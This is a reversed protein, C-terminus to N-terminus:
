TFRQSLHTLLKLKPIPATSEKAESKLMIKLKEAELKAENAPHCHEATIEVTSGETTVRGSCKRDSCRWLTKSPTKRNVM